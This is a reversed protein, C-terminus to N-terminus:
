TAALAEAARESVLEELGLARLLRRQRDDPETITNREVERHRHGLVQLRCPELSEYIRDVEDHIGAQRLQIQLARNIFLALVCLTVHAQIKPTTHHRIPRLQVFSKIVKFAYEVAEKLIYQTILQEATRPDDPHALLVMWGANYDRHRTGHEVAELTIHFAKYTRARHTVEIPDLQVRYDFQMDYKKLLAEVKKRTKHENRTRRANAMEANWTEVARRVKDRKREISNRQEVFQSPRFFLVVRLGPSPVDIRHPPRVGQDVFFLNPDGDAARLGAKCLRQKTPTKGKPTAVIHDFDTETSWDAVRPKKACTVFRREAQVLRKLNDASSFGRDFVLPVGRLEPHTDLAAIWKPLENGEPANGPLLEWRLPLGREDVGLALQIKKRRIAGDKTKGTAAFEGGGSEFWTDTIDLFVVADGSQARRMPHQVLFRTLAPELGELRELVRHIRTNNLQANDFHLLRSLVTRPVWETVRLKSCPALCRNAVLVEVVESAAVHARGAPLQERFFRDLGWQKWLQHIVAVDLYRLAQRGVIDQVQVLASPLADASQRGHVADLAERIAVAEEDSIRGLHAVIEHTPKGNRRVARALQFYRYTRGHRRVTSARLRLSM